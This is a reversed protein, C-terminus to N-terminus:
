TSAGLFVPLKVQIHKGIEQFKRLWDGASKEDRFNTSIQRRTYVQGKRFYENQFEWLDLEIDLQAMVDFIRILTELMRFSQDTPELNKIVQYLKFSAAFSIATKDLEVKWKIADAALKEL